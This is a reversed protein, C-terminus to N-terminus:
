FVFRADPGRRQCQGAPPRHRCGQPPAKRHATGTNEWREAPRQKRRAIKEWPNTTVGADDGLARFVLSLLSVHKNVSNGSLGSPILDAAYDEAVRVAAGYGDRCGSANPQGCRSEM